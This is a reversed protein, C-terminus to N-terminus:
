SVKPFTKFRKLVNERKVTYDKTPVIFSFRSLIFDGCKDWPYDM